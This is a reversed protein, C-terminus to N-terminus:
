GRIPSGEESENRSVAFIGWITLVLLIPLTHSPEIMWEQLAAFGLDPLAPESNSLVWWAVACGLLVAGALVLRRVRLPASDERPPLAACVRATFGDDPIRPPAARLLAELPDDTTDPPTLTPEM